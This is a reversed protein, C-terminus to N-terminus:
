DKKKSLFFDVCIKTPTVEEFLMERVNFFGDGIIFLSNKDFAKKMLNALKFGDEDNLVLKIEVSM